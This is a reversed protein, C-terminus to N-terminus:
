VESSLLGRSRLEEDIQSLSPNVFVDGGIDLTPRIARGNNWSAILNEADADHDVEVYRYTAGLEDLHRLARKTFGCWDSGYVIIEGQPATGQKENNM